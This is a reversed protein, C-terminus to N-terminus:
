DANKKHIAKIAQAERLKEATEKQETTLKKAALDEAAKQDSAIDQQTKKLHLATNSQQQKTEQAADRQAEGKLVYSTESSIDRVTGEVSYGGTLWSIVQEQEQNITTMKTEVAKLRELNSTQNKELSDADDQHATELVVATERQQLELAVAATEAVTLLKKAIIKESLVLMKAAEKQDSLLDTAAKERLEVIPTVSLVASNRRAADYGFNYEDRSLQHMVMAKGAALLALKPFGSQLAQDAYNLEITEWAGLQKGDAALMERLKDVLAQVEPAASVYDAPALESFIRYANTKLDNFRAPM